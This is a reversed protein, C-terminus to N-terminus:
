TVAEAAEPVASMGTHGTEQKVQSRLIGEIHPRAPLIDEPCLQITVATGELATSTM